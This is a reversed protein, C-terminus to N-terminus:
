SQRTLLSVPAARVAEAVGSFAASIASEAKGAASDLDDAPHLLQADLELPLPAPSDRFNDVLTTPRIGPLMGM